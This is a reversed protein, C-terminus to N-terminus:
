NDNTGKQHRGFANSVQSAQGICKEKDSDDEVNRFNLSNVTWTDESPKNTNERLVYVANRNM